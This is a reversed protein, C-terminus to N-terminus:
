VLGRRPGVLNPRGRRGAFERARVPQDAADERGSTVMRRSAAQRAAKARAQAV